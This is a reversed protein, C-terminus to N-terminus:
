LEDKDITVRYVSIVIGDRLVEVDKVADANEMAVVVQSPLRAPFTVTKTSMM